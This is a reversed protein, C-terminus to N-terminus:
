KKVEEPLKFKIKISEIEGRLNNASIRYVLVASSDENYYEYKIEGHKLLGIFRNRLESAIEDHNLIKNREINMVRCCNNIYFDTLASIIGPEVKATANQLANERKAVLGKIKKDAPATLILQFNNGDLFGETTYDFNVSSSDQQASSAPCIQFLLSLLIAATLRCPNAKM